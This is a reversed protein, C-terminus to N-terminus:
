ESIGLYALRTGLDSGLLLRSFKPPSLATEFFSIAFMSRERRCFPEPELGASGVM